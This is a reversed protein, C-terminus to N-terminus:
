AEYIAKFLEEFKNAIPMAVTKTFNVSDFASGLRVPATDYNDACEPNYLIDCLLAACQTM